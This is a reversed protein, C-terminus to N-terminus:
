LESKIVKDKQNDKKHISHIFFPLIVFFGMIPPDFPSGGSFLVFYFIILFFMSFAAYRDFYRIYYCIIKYLLVLYLILGVIGSYLLIHLMPNHPYDTKTKDKLFCYGYWNLFNFGGGFVKQSMNYEKVYIEIAFRWRTIRDEGFNDKASKFTLNARYGHYTTDESVIKTMLNRIIDKDSFSTNQIYLNLPSFNLVGLHVIKKQGLTLKNTKIGSNNINIIQINTKRNDNNQMSISDYTFRNSTRVIEPYAFIVFGKLTSFDKVGGKNIYLYFKVLGNTCKVPLLLKQWADRIKLNSFNDPNGNLSGEARLAAGDGDFDKSVYCYVSAVISDGYIVSEEKLPLFYYSHVPSAFGLCTHDLLYGKSGAPVIESNTGKLKNIIKYNGNGLWAEPDKPDFVPQWIKTYIFNEDMNKNLFHVYKFITESILIKTYPINKVGISELLRNKFYVTTNFFMLVMLIISLSFCLLYYRSNYGFQKVELNKSFLSWLQVSSIIFIILIFLFMGRKSGSVLFDISFIFLLITFILLRSKSIKKFFNILISIQGFLVPILAFNNDVVNRNQHVYMDNYLDKYSSIYLFSYISQLSVILAFVISFRLFSIYLQDLDNSDMVIINMMLMITLILVVNIIDKVVVLYIKDSLLCALLLYILLAIVLTFTHGFEKLGPFLRDRYNVLIYIGITFYVVLFPFKLYPLTSRTIYLYICLNILFIETRRRGAQDFFMFRM